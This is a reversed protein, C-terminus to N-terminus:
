ILVLQPNYSKKFRGSPPPKNLVTWIDKRSFLITPILKMLSYPTWNRTSIMKLFQLILFAILAVWVQIMVANRTTGLFSKIKLNQKMAKFFIEIQWREKYVASVTTPAWSFNNTLIVIYQGTKPDKCRIRRLKLPCKKNTYYGNMIITQDSSINEYSSVDRREIVTYDANKKLRTVFYIGTNCYSAFLEFDTYGRDFTIVAGKEFKMKKIENVEHTKATTVSVFSPIYGSHDLGVHMKIGAKNERFEAWPFLSQCLDITTADISFLPNKFKLKHTGQMMLVKELLERFVNEFIKSSRNNNAYSLTSRKVRKVGLHYLEKRNSELGAEIGRLGTQGSFQGFLMAMFQEWCSFGKSAFDGNYKRVSKEFEHRPIIQTIQKFISNKHSM